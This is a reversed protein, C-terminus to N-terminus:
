SEGGGECGVCGGALISKVNMQRAAQALLAMAVTDAKYSGLSEEYGSVVGDGGLDAHSM